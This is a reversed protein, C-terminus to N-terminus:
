TNASSKRFLRPLLARAETLIAHGVGAAVFSILRNQTFAQAIAVVASIRVDPTNVIAYVPDWAKPQFKSKFFHLGRFNYFRTGHLRLIEFGLELWRPNDRSSAAISLPSLGLTLYASGAKVFAQVASYLLLEMAGNPAVKGRVFQEVLWGNRQPIPSCVLFAVVKGSHEAVFVRRHELRELTHPEVLFHLPPLGRESLWEALCERLASENAARDASWENLQVGKNQARHIQARLSAHTEVARIFDTPMWVPQAGLTAVAHTPRSKLLEYLRREAGFYCVGRGESAAMAELEAVARPLHEERCVPAGAVVWYKRTRVFGAMAEFDEAFWHELGPNVLQWATANWGYKLLLQVARDLSNM